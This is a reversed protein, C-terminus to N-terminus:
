FPLIIKFESGKDPTSQVQIHGGYLEAIKSVISLGLGSGSIGRTRTNKIRVFEKFLRSVEEESMGIGTDRILIEAHNERSMTAVEINGGERNYKVANSLLNNFMIDLDSPDADFFVEEGSFSVNINRQIALPKITSLAMHAREKLNVHEIKDEKRELRIKTFDLLDMILSRMGEVRQLSRDLVHHYDQVQEGLGHDQMIQLYGELANLPSKLEHSLVSLFQYRIKKGEEKMTHTIRKLFLQKAILDVSAKLEAPTFPKPIFDRAGDDTARAAIEMSAYSTIMAVMIDMDRNRIIELVEMGDMGPLKNDLLLIDPAEKELIELAKEGTSAESVEFAYDEDMFPFSVIHRSLIRKIGSRIGPEDDVVLLSITEM